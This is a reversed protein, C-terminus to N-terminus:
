KKPKWSVVNNVPIKNLSKTERYGNSFMQRYGEIETGDYLKLLVNEYHEPLRDKTNIWEM